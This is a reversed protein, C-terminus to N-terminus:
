LTPKRTPSASMQPLSPILEPARDPAV